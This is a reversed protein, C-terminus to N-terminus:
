TDLGKQLFNGSIKFVQEANSWYSDFDSTEQFSADSPVRNIGIKRNLKM